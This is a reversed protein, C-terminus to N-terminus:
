ETIIFNFQQTTNGLKMLFYTDMNDFDQGDAWVKYKQFADFKGDSYPM